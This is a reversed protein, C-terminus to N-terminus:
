YRPPSEINVTTAVTNLGRGSLTVLLSGKTIPELDIETDGDSNTVFTGYIEGAKWVCISAGPANTNISLKATGLPIADPVDVEPTVPRAAHVPLTPDGLLNFECICLHFGASKEADAAMDSAASALAQGTNHKVTMANLWYRTLMMTSGDLKGESLMLDFDSREHFHMKGTRIPAVVAVSGAGAQRLISEVISPDRLSDYEGTNCSVTTMLPYAGGNAMAGVNGIRFDGEELIWRDLEGHGHIHMKGFQGANFRKLLNDASLADDDGEADDTDGAFLRSEQGAWMPSIYDEWSRIVKLSSREDASTFLMTEAFGDTPYESEYSIVKATFAAVDEVTRVPVRGLGVSGDPYSIAERDDKWEGLVGDGDADWSTESLYVIDTPIGAPEMKHVTTHGGPVVGGGPVCDGGLVVWSTRHEEIHERVCMRIKEQIGEAEYTRAIQEVTMIKTPLGKRTKWIAYPLWAKALDSGTIVLVEAHGGDVLPPVVVPDRDLYTAMVVPKAEPQTAGRPAGPARRSGMVEQLIRRRGEFEAESIEGDSNADVKKAVTTRLEKPLHPLKDGLYDVFEEVSMEDLPHSAPAAFPQPASAIVAFAAAFAVSPTKAHM